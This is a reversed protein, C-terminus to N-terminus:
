KPLQPNKTINNIIPEKTIQAFAGDAINVNLAKLAREREEIFFTELDSKNAKWASVDSLVSNFSEFLQYASEIGAMKARKKIEDVIVTLPVTKNGLNERLTKIIGDMEKIKKKYNENEENLKDQDKNVNSTKPVKEGKMEYYKKEIVMKEMSLLFYDQQMIYYSNKLKSLENEIISLQQNATHLEMDLHINDDKFRNIIMQWERKIKGEQEQLDTIIKEIENYQKM